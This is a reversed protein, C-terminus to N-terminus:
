EKDVSTSAFTSAIKEDSNDQKKAGGFLFDTITNVKVSMSTFVMTILSSEVTGIETGPGIKMWGFVTIFMMIIMGFYGILFLIAFVKQLFSDDKYMDRASQRDSLYMQEAQLTLKYMDQKAKMVQLEFENKEEKTLIFKDATNAVSDIIGTASGGLVNKFFDGVKSM